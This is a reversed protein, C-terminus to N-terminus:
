LNNKVYFADGWGHETMFITQRVFNFKSLYSEIDELLACNEYLEKTSVEIYIYDVNNIIDGAGKLALLEAGQIDFAFFNFSKYNFNNEDYFTKLTKTKMMVTTTQHIDPHELLHEKLKLISSSQLNNTVNFSVLQGDTDSICENYIRITPHSQKISKVKDELAEIWVIDDDTINNFKSLYLLREECDHAGLHLIGIVEKQFILSFINILM